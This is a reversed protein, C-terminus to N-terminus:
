VMFNGPIFILDFMPKVGILSLVMSEKEGSERLEAYKELIGAGPLHNYPIGDDVPFYLHFVVPHPKPSNGDPRWHCFLCWLCEM